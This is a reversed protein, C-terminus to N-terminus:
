DQENRRVKVKKNWLLPVLEKIYEEAEGVTFWDQGWFSVKKNHWDNLDDKPIFLEYVTQYGTLNLRDLADSSSVPCVLVNEIATPQEEYIPRNFADVGTQKKEYLYVTVGKIM